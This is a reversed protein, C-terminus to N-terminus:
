TMDGGVVGLFIHSGLGSFAALSPFRYSSELSEFNVFSLSCGNLKFPPIDNQHFCHETLLNSAYILKTASSVLIIQFDQEGTFHLALLDTFSVFM